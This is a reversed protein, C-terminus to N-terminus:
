KKVKGKVLLPLLHMVALLAHITKIKLVLKLKAESTESTFDPFIRIKKDSKKVPLFSNVLELFTYLATSAVGYLQATKAADGTAIRVYAHCIKVRIYRRCEGLVAKIINSFYVIIDVIEDPTRLRGKIKKNERAEPVGEEKGSFREALTEIDFSFFLVKLKVSVEEELVFVLYFDLTLVFILIFLIVALTILFATM